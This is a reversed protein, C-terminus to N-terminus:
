RATALWHLSTAATNFAARALAGLAPDVHHPRIYLDFDKTRRSVNAYMEVVYAGGILFPVDADQLAAMSRLYFDNLRRKTKSAAARTVAMMWCLAVWAPWAHM